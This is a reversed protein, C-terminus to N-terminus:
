TITLQQQASSKLHFFAQNDQQKGDQGRRYGARGHVTTVGAAIEFAADILFAGALSHLATVRRREFVYQLGRPRMDPPFNDALDQLLMLAYPKIFKADHSRVPVHTVHM